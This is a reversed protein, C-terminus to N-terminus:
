SQMEMVQKTKKKLEPRIGIIEKVLEVKEKM